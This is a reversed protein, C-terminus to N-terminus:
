EQSTSNLITCYRACCIFQRMHNEFLVELRRPGWKDVEKWILAMVGEEVPIERPDIPEFGFNEAELIREWVVDFTEGDKNALVAPSTGSSQTEAKLRDIKEGVSALANDLLLNNSGFKNEVDDLRKALEAREEEDISDGAEKFFQRIREFITNVTIDTLIEKRIDAAWSLTSRCNEYRQVACRDILTESMFLTEYEVFKELVDIVRHVDKLTIARLSDWNAISTIEQLNVEELVDSSVIEEIALRTRLYTLLDIHEPHPELYKLKEQRFRRAALPITLKDESLKINTIVEPPDKSFDVKCILIATGYKENYYFFKIIKTRADEAKIFNPDNSQAKMELWTRIIEKEDPNEESPSQRVPQGAVEVKPLFIGPPVYFEDDFTEGDKNLLVAPSTTGSQRQDELETIKEELSTLAVDLLLHDTEFWSELGDLRRLLDTREKEAVADGEEDFFQRVREFIMNVKTDTLVEERAKLAWLIEEKRNGYLTISSGEPEAGTMFHTEVKVFKELIDIVTYVDELTIRRLSDWKAISAIAELNDGSLVGSKIHREVALRKELHTLINEEEPHPIPSIIIRDRLEITFIDGSLTIDHPKVIPPDQSLDAEYVLHADGEVKDEDYYFFRLKKKHHDWSRIFKFPSNLAMMELWTRITEEENPDETPASRSVPKSTLGVTPLFTGPLVYFEKDFPKVRLDAENADFINIPRLGNEGARSVTPMITNLLFAIITTTIVFKRMYM